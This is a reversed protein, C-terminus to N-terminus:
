RGGGAKNKPPKPEAKNAPPGPEAKAAFNKPYQALLIAAQEPTVEVPGAVHCEVYGPGVLAKFEHSPGSPNFVIQM